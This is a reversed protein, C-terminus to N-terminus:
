ANVCGYGFIGMPWRFVKKGAFGGDPADGALVDKQQATGGGGNELDGVGGDSEAHGVVAIEAGVREPAEPAREFGNVRDSESRAEFDFGHRLPNAGGM